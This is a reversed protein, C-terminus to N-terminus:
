VFHAIVIQLLYLNVLYIFLIVGISILDLIRVEKMFNFFPLEFHKLLLIFFNCIEILKDHLSNFFHFTWFVGERCSLKIKLPVGLRADGASEEWFVVRGTFSPLFLFLLCDYELLVELEQQLKTSISAFLGM